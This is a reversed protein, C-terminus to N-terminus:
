IGFVGCVSVARDQVEQLFQPSQLAQVVSDLPGLGKLIHEYVGPAVICWLGQCGWSPLAATPQGLGTWEVEQILIVAVISTQRSFFSSCVDPACTIRRSKSNELAEKSLM